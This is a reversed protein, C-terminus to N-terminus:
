ISYSWKYGGSTNLKGRACASINQPSSNLSIAAQTVNRWEQVFNGQLDFQYVKKSKGNNLSQKLKTEESHKPRFKGKQNQPLKAIHEPSKKKGKASESMKRKTEESHKRGKWILGLKDKWEDSFVIGKRSKSMKEKTENSFIGKKDNTNTLRCNLGNRDIVNYYDQWYREKSNLDDINCQEMIEITHNEFGYKKISNYIRVQSKNAGNKYHNLRKTFDITQGIYIKGKPNTIKYICIM